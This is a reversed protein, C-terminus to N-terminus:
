KVVNAPRRDLLPQGGTVRAVGGGLWRAVRGSWRRSVAVLGYVVLAAATDPILAARFAPRAPGAGAEQRGGAPMPRAPRGCQLVVLVVVVEFSRGSDRGEESIGGRTVEGPVM